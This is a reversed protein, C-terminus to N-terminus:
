VPTDVSIQRRWFRQLSRAIGRSGLVLWLGFAVRAGQAAIVEIAYTSSALEFGNVTGSGWGFGTQDSRPIALSVGMM